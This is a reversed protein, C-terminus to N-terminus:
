PNVVDNPQQGTLAKIVNGVAKQKLDAFSEVSIYSVHPTVVIGPCHLVEESGDPPEHAIVDVVAGAILGEKVARVLDPENVVRGRSTNILTATPKMLRFAEYSVLSDTDKNYIPNLSVFDANRLGEEWDVKEVGYSSVTEKDVYPDYATVKMGLAKAKTGVVRGITGFGIIHLTSSSIRRPQRDIAMAGWVGKEIKEDFGKLQKNTGYIAAMVYDALDEACYGQVNTVPIGRTKAFPYDVRDYGGGYVAIIKCQNLKEITEKPIYVYIQSVIADADKGFDELDKQYDNGSFRIECGPFAEELMQKEIDYDPWEEDIIWILPKM